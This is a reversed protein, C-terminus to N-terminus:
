EALDRGAIWADLLDSGVAYATIVLAAVFVTWLATSILGVGVQQWLSSKSRIAQEIERAQRLTENNVAAERIGPEQVEVYTEAYSSLLDSARERLTSRVDDTLFHTTVATVEQASPRAGDNAHRHKVIWDRKQRKYLAYAILGVLDHEGGDEDVYHELVRNYDTELVQESTPAAPADSQRTGSGESTM